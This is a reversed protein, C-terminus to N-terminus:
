AIKGSPQKYSEHCGELIKEVKMVPYEGLTVWQSGHLLLLRAKMRPDYVGNVVVSSEMVPNGGYLNRFTRASFLALVKFGDSGKLMFVAYEDDSGLAPGYIRRAVAYPSPSQVAFEFVTDKVVLRYVGPQFLYTSGKVNVGRVIEGYSKLQSVDKYNSSKVSMLGIGLLAAFFVLAFVLTKRAGM